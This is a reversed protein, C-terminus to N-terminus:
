PPAYEAVRGIIRNQSVKLKRLNRRQAEFGSVKRWGSPVRRLGGKYTHSMQCAYINFGDYTVIDQTGLQLSLVTICRLRYALSRKRALFRCYIGKIHEQVGSIVREKSAASVLSLLGHTIYGFVPWLPVRQLITPFQPPDERPDM